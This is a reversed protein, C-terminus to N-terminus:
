KEPSSTPTKPLKGENKMGGTASAGFKWRANPIHGAYGPVIGKKERYSTQFDSIGSYGQSSSTHQTSM